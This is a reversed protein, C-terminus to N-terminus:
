AKADQETSRGRGRPPQDPPPMIPIALKVRRPPTQRPLAAQTQTSYYTIGNQGQFLEAQQM